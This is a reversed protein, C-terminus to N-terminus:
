KKKFRYEKKTPVEEIGLARLVAPDPDDGHMFDLVQRKNVSTQRSFDNISDYEDDILRQLYSRVDEVTM